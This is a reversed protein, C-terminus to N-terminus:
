DTLRAGHGHYSVIYPIPSCTAGAGQREDGRLRGEISSSTSGTPTWVACSGVLARRPIRLKHGLYLSPLHRQKVLTYITGNAVRHLLRAVEEVTFVAEDPLSDSAADDLVAIEVDPDREMSPMPKALAQREVFLLRVAQLLEVQAKHSAEVSTEVKSLVAEVESQKM